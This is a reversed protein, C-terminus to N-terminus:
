SLLSMCSSCHDSKCLELALHLEVVPCFDVSLFFKFSLYNLDSM